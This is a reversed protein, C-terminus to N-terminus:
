RIYKLTQAYTKLGEIGFEEYYAIQVKYCAAIDATADIIARNFGFVAGADTAAFRREKEPVYDAATDLGICVHGREAVAEYLKDMNYTM